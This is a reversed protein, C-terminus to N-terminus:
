IDKITVKHDRGYTIHAYVIEGRFYYQLRLTEGRHFRERVEPDTIDEVFSLGWMTAIAYDVGYIVQKYPVGNEINECGVFWAINKRAKDLDLECLECLDIYEIKIMRAM